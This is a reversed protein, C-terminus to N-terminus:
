CALGLDQLMGVGCRATAHPVIQKHVYGPFLRHFCGPVRVAIWCMPLLFLVEVEVGRRKAPRAGRHGICRPHQRLPQLFVLHKAGLDFREGTM